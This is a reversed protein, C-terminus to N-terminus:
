EDAAVVAAAAAASAAAHEVTDNLRVTLARWQECAAQWESSLGIARDLAEQAAADPTGSAAAADSAEKARALAAVQQAVVAYEKEGRTLLVQMVRAGQAHELLAAVVEGDNFDLLSEVLGSLQRMVAALRGDGVDASGLALGGVWACLAASLMEDAALSEATETESCVVLPLLRLLVVLLRGFEAPLLLAGCRVLLRKGKSMSLLLGTADEAAGLSATRAGAEGGEEGGEPAPAASSVPVGMVSALQHQLQTIKEQAGRMADMADAPTTIGSDDAAATAATAAITRGRLQISERALRADSLELVAQFVADVASRAAWLRSEGSALGSSHGAGDDSTKGEAGGGSLTTAQAGAQSPRPELKLLQRPRRADGGGSQGLSHSKAAFAARVQSIATSTEQAKAMMATAVETTLPMVLAASPPPPPGIGPNGMRAAIVAAAQQIHARKCRLAQLYFLSNADAVGARFLQSAHVTAVRLTEPQTMRGGHTQKPPAVSGLAQLALNTPHESPDPNSSFPVYAWVGRGPGYLPVTPALRAAPVSLAVAGAPGGAGSAANGEATQAGLSLPAPPLLSVAGAPPVLSGTDPGALGIQMPAVDAGSGSGDVSTHTHSAAPAALGSFPGLASAGSESPGLLESGVSGAHGLDVGNLGSLSGMTGSSDESFMSGLLHSLDDDAAGMAGPAQQFLSDGMVQEQERMAKAKSPQWDGKGAGTTASSAGEALGETLASSSLGGALDIDAAGLGGM